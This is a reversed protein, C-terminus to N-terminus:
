FQIILSKLNLIDTLAPAVVVSLCDMQSHKLEIHFITEDDRTEVYFTKIKEKDINSLNIISDYMTYVEKTNFFRPLSM